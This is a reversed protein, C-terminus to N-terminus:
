TLSVTHFIRVTNITVSSVSKNVAKLMSLSMGSMLLLGILVFSSLGVNRKVHSYSFGQNMRDIVSFLSLGMVLLGLLVHVVMTTAGFHKFNRVLIIEIFALPVWCLYLIM